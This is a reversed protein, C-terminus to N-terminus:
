LEVLTVGPVGPNRCDAMIFQKLTGEQIMSLLNEVLVKKNVDDFVSLEDLIVVKPEAKAALAVGIAARAIARESGSFTVFPIFLGARRVGIEGGEYVLPSRLIPEAIRNAVALWKLAAGDVIEERLAKVNKQMAKVAEVEIGTKEAEAAAQRMRGQENRIQAIRELTQECGTIEAQVGSAETVLGEQSEEPGAAQAQNQLENRAIVRDNHVRVAEAAAEEFKLIAARVSAIGAEIEVRREQAATIEAIRENIGDIETQLTEPSRESGGADAEKQLAALREKNAKLTERAQALAAGNQKQAEIQVELARSAKLAAGLEEEKAQLTERIDEVRSLLELGKENKEIAAERDADSVSEVKLWDTVGIFIVEGLVADYRASGKIEVPVGDPMPCEEPTVWTEKTEVELVDAAETQLLASQETVNAIETRLAEVAEELTAIVSLKSELADQLTGDGEPAEPIEGAAQIAEFLRDMEANRNRIERNGADLAGLQRSLDQQRERLVVLKSRQDETREIVDLEKQLAVLRDHRRQNEQLGATDEPAQLLAALREIENLRNRKERNAAALAGMRKNIEAVSSRLGALKAEIVPASPLRELEGDLAALDNLGAVVGDMRKVTADVESKETKLIDGAVDIMEPADMGDPALRTLEAIKARVKELLRNKAAEFIAKGPGDGKYAGSGITELIKEQTWKGKEGLLACLMKVRAPGSADFWASPDLMLAYEPSMYAPAKHDVSVKRQAINMGFLASGEDAVTEIHSATGSAFRFLAQNTKVAGDDNPIYGLHSLRLGDLVATKGAFNAGVIVTAPSLPIKRNQGKFATLTIHKLM